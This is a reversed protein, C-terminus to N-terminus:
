KLLKRILILEDERSIVKGDLKAQLVKKFIKQYGPGPKLGLSHLDRGSAHIRTGSLRAFFSDVNRVLMKNAYRIQLLLIVEYSLPELLDYIRSFKISKKSLEKVFRSSINKYSLIRKEEGRRFVFRRCLLVTDKISLSDIIGCFYILWVDLKRLRPHSKKFLDLKHDINDLLSKRYQKLSPSIFKLGVLGNLRKIGGIPFAEKLLLIIEDRVRQPQVKELMKAKIAAKLFGLTHPEIKFGLRQEFRIARIIRTPDDLFSLDHLIRIKKNVLDSRGAFYDILKGYNKASLEIAMANITFDRRALDDRLVSPSVVPLCALEPYSEKRSTAFDIKKHGLTITATGFRKHVVIKAGLKQTLKQAFLMADGEVSIDLDLNDVGLILDRVFGGVLYVPLHELEATDSISRILSRLEEPLKVLYQKM